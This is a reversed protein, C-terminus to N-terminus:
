WGATTLTAAYEAAAFEFPGVASLDPMEDPPSMGDDFRFDLWRVLGGRGEADSRDVLVTVAGCGLDGCRACVAVAVRGEGIWAQDAPPGRRGLLEDVADASPAPWAEDVVSVLDFGSWAPGVLERLPRSGIVFEGQEVSGTLRRVRSSAVRIRAMARPRGVVCLRDM